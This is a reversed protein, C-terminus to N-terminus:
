FPFTMGSPIFGLGPSNPVNVYGQHVSLPLSVDHIVHEGVLLGCPPLPTPLLSACHLAVNVGVRSELSATIITKIGTSQAHTIIRAVEDPGGVVQPKVILFEPPYKTIYTITDSASSACHDNAFPFPSIERLAQITEPPSKPDTPEEIYEINADSLCDALYMLHDKNWCGNPDLRIKIDKGVAGILAGIRACEDKINRGCKIKITSIGRAVYNEAQAIVKSHDHEVILGNVPVRSAQSLKIGGYTSNALLKGLSIDKAQAIMSFIASSLGCRLRPETALPTLLLSVAEVPDPMALLDLINMSNYISEVIELDESWNRREGPPPCVEGWGHVTLHTTSESSIPNPPLDFSSQSVLEQSTPILLSSKVESRM